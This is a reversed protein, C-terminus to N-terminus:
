WIVNLTPVPRARSCSPKMLSAGVLQSQSGVRSHGEVFDVRLVVVRRRRPFLRPRIRYALLDFLPEDDVLLLLSPTCGLM